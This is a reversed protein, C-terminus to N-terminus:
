GEREREHLFDVYALDSQHIHQKLWDAFLITVAMTISKGEALTAQLAGIQAILEAHEGRHRELDPFGMEQMFHEEDRFHERTYQDLFALSKTVKRAANGATFSEALENVARFLAQHQADIPAVGTLYRDSWIIITM